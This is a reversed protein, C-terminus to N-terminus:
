SGAPVASEDRAAAMAEFRGALASDAVAVLAGYALGALLPRKTRRLLTTVGLHVVTWSAGSTALPLASRVWAQEHDADTFSLFTLGGPKIAWAAAYSGAIAVLRAAASPALTAAAVGAGRVAPAPGVEVATV